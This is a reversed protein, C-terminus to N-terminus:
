SKWRSKGPDQFLHILQLPCYRVQWQRIIEKASEKACWMVVIHDQSSEEKLSSIILDMERKSVRRGTKGGEAEVDVENFIIERYICIKQKKTLKRIQDLGLRGSEDDLFAFFSDCAQKDDYIFNVLFLHIEPRNLSM